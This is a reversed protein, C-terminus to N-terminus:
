VCLPDVWVTSLNKVHLTILASALKAGLDDPGGEPKVENKERPLSSEGMELAFRDAQWEFERSLANMGLSFIAEFPTLIMQFLMFAVLIPPQPKYASASYGFAKPLARSKLFPPFASLILLLHVQSVLLLKLPHSHAWHGLEHASLRISSRAILVIGFPMDPDLM